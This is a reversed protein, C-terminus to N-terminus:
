SDSIAFMNFFNPLPNDQIWPTKVSFTELNTGLTRVLKTSQFLLQVISGFKRDFTVVSSSDHNLVLLFFCFLLWALPFRWRRGTFFFYDELWILFAKKIGLAYNMWKNWCILGDILGKIKNPLKSVVADFEIQALCSVAEEVISICRCVRGKERNLLKQSLLFPEM